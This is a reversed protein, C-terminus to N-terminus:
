ASPSATDKQGVGFADLAESESVALAWGNSDNTIVNAKQCKHILDDYRSRTCDHGSGFHHGMWARRSLGRVSAGQLFEKLDQLDRQAETVGAAGNKVYVFRPGAEGAGGFSPVPLVDAAKSIRKAIDEGNRAISTMVAAAQAQSALQLQAAESPAALETFSTVGSLSRATDLVIWQGDVRTVVLPMLGNRPSLTMARVRLWHVAWWAGGVFLILLGIGVGVAGWRFAYVISSQAEAAANAFTQAQAAQAELQAARAREQRAIAARAEPSSQLASNATLGLVFVLALTLGLMAASFKTNM